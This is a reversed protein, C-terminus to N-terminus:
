SASGSRGPQSRWARGRRRSAALALERFTTTEVGPAALARALPPSLVAQAEAARDLTGREESPVDALSAAPHAIVEIVRGRAWRPVGAPGTWTAAERASVWGDPVVLGHGRAVGASMTALLRLLLRKGGELLGEGGLPGLHRLSRVAPIDGGALRRCLARRVWPLCWAHRHVDLHSPTFGLGEAAARQRAIVASLAGGRRRRLSGLVFGGLAHGRLLDLHLGLDADPIRAQVDAVAAESTPGLALVSVSTLGGTELGRALGEDVGASLGLDDGSVLVRTRRVRAPTAPGFAGLGADRAFILLTDLGAQLAGRWGVRSARDAPQVRVPGTVCRHGARHALLILELDWAFRRSRLRPVLAHAVSRRIAKLGTQTDRLPLRFCLATVLHYLRSLLRRSVPWILSAEAHYKSGVAVDAGERELREVLPLVDEPPIELDADLLVIVDERAVVCGTALARGKGLNHPHALVRVRADEAAVARAVDGTGDRSGDDVVLIEFPRGTRELCAALRRLNAALHPAEDYAPLVVSLGSV